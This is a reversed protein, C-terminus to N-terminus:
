IVLNAKHPNEENPLTSTKSVDTTM